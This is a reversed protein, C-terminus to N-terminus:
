TGEGYLEFCVAESGSLAIAPVGDLDFAYRADFDETCQNM